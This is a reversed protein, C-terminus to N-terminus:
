NVNLHKDRDAENMLEDNGSGHVREIVSLRRRSFEKGPPFFFGWHM